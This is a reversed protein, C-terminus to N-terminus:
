VLLNRRAAQQRVHPFGLSGPKAGGHGRIVERGPARTLAFGAEGPREQTRRKLRCLQWETHHVRWTLAVVGGDHRLGRGRQALQKRAPQPHREARALRGVLVDGTLAPGRLRLPVCPQALAHVDHAGEEGALDDVVLAEYTDVSRAEPRQGRLRRAQDACGYTCLGRAPASAPRVPQHRDVLRTLRKLPYDIREALATAVAPRGVQLDVQAPRGGILLRQLGRMILPAGVYKGRRQAPVELRDLLEVQGRLVYTRLVHLLRNEHGGIEGPM